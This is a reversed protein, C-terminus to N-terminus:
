YLGRHTKKSSFLQLVLLCLFKQRCQIQLNSMLCSSDSQRNELICLTPAPKRSHLFVVWMVNLRLNNSHGEAHQYYRIVLWYENM